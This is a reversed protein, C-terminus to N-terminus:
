RASVEMYQPQEDPKPMRSLYKIEEWTNVQVFAIFLLIVAPVLTWTVELRHQNHIVATIPRFLNKFMSTWFVKNEAYHHGFVHSRTGPGGAYAFMFYVLLSETLIFFFGTIALIVYFLNDVKPGYSSVNRPLWWGAFPAVVFLAVAAFM